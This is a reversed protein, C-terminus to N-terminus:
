PKGKPAAPRRATVFIQEPVSQVGLPPGFDKQVTGETQVQLDSFGIDLRSKGFSINKIATMKADEPTQGQAIAKAYERQFNLQNESALEGGLDTPERGFKSKFAGILANLSRKTISGGEPPLSVKVKEDGLKVRNDLWLDPPKAAGGAPPTDLPKGAADVYIYAEGLKVWKGEVQGMLDVVLEGPDGPRPTQGKFDTAVVRRPGDDMVTIATGDPLKVEYTIPGGPTAWPAHDPVDIKETQSTVEGGLGALVDAVNVRPCTFFGPGKPQLYLLPVVGQKIQALNTKLSERLGAITEPSMKLKAALGGGEPVKGSTAEKQAAAEIDDLVALRDELWAQERGVYEQAAQFDRGAKIAEVQVELAARLRNNAKLRTAFAYASGELDSFLPKTAPAIAHMAIAMALGQLAIQKIEASDLHKGEKIYKDLDAKAFTTAALILVQGGVAQVKSLKAVEAFMAFRRMLGFIAWNTGFEYAIHGFSHDKDLFIQTLVTFTLAEAGGALVATTGAGLEWGAAGAVVLDGVGATVVTIAILAVLKGIIAEIQASKILSQVEGFWARLAPDKRLADLDAKAKAQKDPDGSKWDTFITKWRAHLADGDAKLKRAVIQTLMSSWFWSVADDMAQWATDIQDMNGVIEAEVQLDSILKQIDKMAEAAGAPDTQIQARLAALRVRLAEERRQMGSVDYSAHETEDHKTTRADDLTRQISSLAGELFTVPLAGAEDEVSGLMPVATAPLDSALAVDAYRMAVHAMAERVYPPLNFGGLKVMADDVMRTLDALRGAHRDLGYAVQSLVEQQAQTQGAWSLADEDTGALIADRRTALRKKLPDLSSVPSGRVGMGFKAGASEISAVIRVSQDITLLVDEKSKAESPLAQGQNKALEDALPGTEAEQLADGLREINVGMATLTQQHETLLLTADNIGFLPPAVVVLEGVATTTGYLAHAAEEPTPQAPMTDDEPATVRAWYANGQPAEWTVVCDRVKELKGREDPNAARYGQYDFTTTAILADITNVDIPASPVINEAAVPPVVLCAQSKEEEAIGLAVAAKEYRPVIRDLSKRMLAQLAVSIEVAVDPFWRGPGQHEKEEVWTTKEDTVLERGKTRARDVAADVVGKGLWGDLKDELDAGTANLINLTLLLPSLQLFRSGVPLDNQTFYATIGDGIETAFKARYATADIDPEPEGDRAIVQESASSAAGRQERASTELPDRRDLVRLDGWVAPNPAGRQQAVHTLEHALLNGGDSDPGHGAGFFVREGVTFARAQLSAAARAAGGGTVIRADHVDAGVRRSWQDAGTLPAGPATSLVSTVEQPMTPRAPGGKWSRALLTLTAQNGLQGAMDLDPPPRRNPRAVGESKAPAPIREKGEKM